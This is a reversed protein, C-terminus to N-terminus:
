FDNCKDQCSSFCSDRITPCDAVLSYVVVTTTITIFTVREPETGDGGKIRYMSDNNLTAITEKNLQLKKIQKEM